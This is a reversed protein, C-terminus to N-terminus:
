NADLLQSIGALAHIDDREAGLLELARALGANLQSEIMGLHMRTHLMSRNNRSDEGELAQTVFDEYQIYKENVPGQALINFLEVLCDIDSGTASCLEVRLGQDSFISKFHEQTCRGRGEKDVEKFIVRLRNANNVRVTTTTMLMDEADAKQSSAIMGDSVVSTLIALIAWNSVVMFLVFMLKGVASSLIPDVVSQDDNMLKFLEFMSDVVTGFTEQADPPPRGDFAYGHGILSTFLIGGAYLMFLALVFVWHMGQMAHLVGGMLVYLPKISRVVRYIRLIRFVRLIRLIRVQPGLHFSSEKQGLLHIEVLSIAPTMWKELIGAGVIVVDLYSMVVGSRHMGFYSWGLLKFRMTLEFVYMVLFINDLITWGDWPIDLELGMVVANAMIVTLMFSEFVHGEVWTMDSDLIIRVIKLVRLVRLLRFFKLWQASNKDETLLPLLWQEVIGCFIIFMDLWNGWVDSLSGFLLGSQHHLGRLGLEILYWILFIDNLRCFVFAYEGDHDTTQLIMAVCNALIIAASIVTFVHGEVFKFTESLGPLHKPSAPDVHLKQETKAILERLRESEQVFPCRRRQWSEDVAQLDCDLESLRRQLQCLESQLCKADGGYPRAEELLTLPLYTASAAM